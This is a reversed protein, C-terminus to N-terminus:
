PMQFTITLQSDFKLDTLSLGLPLYHARPYQYDPNEPSLLLAGLDFVSFHNSEVQQGTIFIQVPNEGCNLSLIEQHHNSLPTNTTSSPSYECVFPIQLINKMGPMKYQVTFENELLTIMTENGPNNENSMILQSFDNSIDKVLQRPHSEMIIGPIVTPDSFVGNGIKWEESPSLGFMFQSTSGTIQYFSNKNTKVAIFPIYGGNLEYIMFYSQNSILCEKEQDQDIDMNCQIQKKSSAAWRNAEIQYYFEPIYDSILPELYDYNQPHLLSYFHFVSGKQFPGTSLYLENALKDMKDSPYNLQRPQTKSQNPSHFRIWPHNRLYDFIIPASNFDSLPSEPFDINLTILQEPNQFYANLLFKEISPSLGQNNFIPELNLNDPTEINCLQLPSYYNTILTEDLDDLFIEYLDDQPFNPSCLKLLGSSWLDQIYKDQSLLDLAQVNQPTLFDSFTLPIQYRKSAALLHSLGFREGFPGNHAGDWNRLIQAPTYGLLTNKLQLEVYVPSPSKSYLSFKPTIDTIEQNQNKVIFRFEFSKFTSPLQLTLYNQKQNIFWFFGQSESLASLQLPGSSHNLIEIFILDPEFNLMDLFDIRMQIGDPTLRSYYAIIDPSSLLDIQDLGRLTDIEWFHGPPTYTQNNLQQLTSFSLFIVVVVLILGVFRKM